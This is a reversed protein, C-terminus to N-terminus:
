DGGRRIRDASVAARQESTLLPGPCCADFPRNTYNARAILGEAAKNADAIVRNLNV